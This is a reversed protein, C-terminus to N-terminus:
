GLSVAPRPQRRRPAAQTRTPRTVPNASCWGREIGFAFAGHLFTTVNRITKPSLGRALMGRVLREVDERTVESAARSGIAPSIHIRQMSACNQGYSLPAGEIELHDRLAAVLEDVTRPREAPSPLPRRADEDILRQLQREAQARTLGDTSGRARLKGIRRNL